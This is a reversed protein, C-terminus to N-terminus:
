STDKMAYGERTVDQSSTLTNKPPLAHNSTFWPLWLSSSSGMETIRSRTYDGWALQIIWLSNCFHHHTVKSALGYLVHFSEGPEKESCNSQPCSIDPLSSSLNGQPSTCIALFLTLVLLWCWSLMWTLSGNPFCIRWGWDLGWIVAAGASSKVVIEHALVMCVTLKSGFEQGM